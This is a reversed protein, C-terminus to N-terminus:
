ASEKEADAAVEEESEKSQFFPAGIRRARGHLRKTFYKRPARRM